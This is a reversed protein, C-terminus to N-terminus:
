TGHMCSVLIDQRLLMTIKKGEKRKGKAQRGGSGIVLGNLSLSYWSFYYKVSAKQVFTVGAPLAFTTQLQAPPPAAYPLM